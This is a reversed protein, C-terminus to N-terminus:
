KKGKRQFSRKALETLRTTRDVAFSSGCVVCQHVTNEDAEILLWVQKCKPCRYTLAETVMLVNKSEMKKEMALERTKGAM